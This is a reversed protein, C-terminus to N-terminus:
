HIACFRRRRYSYIHLPSQLTGKVATEHDKGSDQSANSYDPVLEYSKCRMAKYLGGSSVQIRNRQTSVCM